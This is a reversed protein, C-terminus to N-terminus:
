IQEGWRLNNAEAPTMLGDMMPRSIHEDFLQEDYHCPCSEDSCFPRLATHVPEGDLPIVPVFRVEDTEMLRRAFERAMISIWDQDIIVIKMDRLEERILFLLDSEEQHIVDIIDM